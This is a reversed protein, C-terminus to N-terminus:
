LRGDLTGDNLAKALRRFMDRRDEPRLKAIDSQLQRMEGQSIRGVQTYFYLSQEVAQPQQQYDVETREDSGVTEGALSQPAPTSVLLAGVEERIIERLRDEGPNCTNAAPDSVSRSASVHNARPQAEPSQTAVAQEVSNLRSLLVLILVLQAAALLSILKM